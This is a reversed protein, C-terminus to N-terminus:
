TWIVRTEVGGPAPEGDKLIPKPAAKARPGPKAKVTLGEAGPEGVPSISLKQSVGQEPKPALYNEPELIPKENPTPDLHLVKEVVIEPAIMELVEYRLNNLCGRMFPTDIEVVEVHGEDRGAVKQTWRIRANAM